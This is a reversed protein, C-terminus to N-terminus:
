IGIGRTLYERHRGPDGAAVHNAIKRFMNDRNAGFGVIELDLQGFNVLAAPLGGSTFRWNRQDRLNMGVLLIYTAGVEISSMRIEVAREHKGSHDSLFSMGTFQFNM